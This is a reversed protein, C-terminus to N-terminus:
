RLNIDSHFNHLFHVSSFADTVRFQPQSIKNLVKLVLFVFLEQSSDVRIELGQYRAAFGERSMFYMQRLEPRFCKTCPQVNKSRCFCFQLKSANLGYHDYECTPRQAFQSMM